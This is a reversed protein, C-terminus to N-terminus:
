APAPRPTKLLAAAEREASTQAVKDRLYLPLAERAPVGDGRHWADLTLQLLARARASNDPSDPPASAVSDLGDLGHGVRWAPGGVAWHHRLADPQWLGPPMLECWAEKEPQWRYRAAYVEGMRADVVVGVDLAADPSAECGARWAQAIVLLSDIGLLPRDLGYGLGQAIACANRLGTFAGPGRAFGIADLDTWGAGLEALLRQSRGLTQASAQAGGPGAWVQRVLRHCAALCLTETSSDIALLTPSAATM